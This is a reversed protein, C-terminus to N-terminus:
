CYLSIVSSMQLHFEELLTTKMSPMFFNSNNINPLLAIFPSKEFSLNLQIARSGGDDRGVPDFKIVKELQGPAPGTTYFKKRKYNVYKQLLSSHIDRGLREPKTKHKRTLCSGVQTVVLIRLNRCYFTKLVRGQNHLMTMVRLM